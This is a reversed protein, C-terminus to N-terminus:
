GLTSGAFYFDFPANYTPSIECQVNFPITSENPAKQFAISIDGTNICQYAFARRDGNFSEWGLMFRAENGPTPPTVKTSATTTAGTVTKTAGNLAWAFKTAVFDELAFEVSGTRATTYIAIPDFSEAAEVPSTTINYHFTSGGTTMGMWVWGTAWASTFKSATVATSDPPTTGLPAYWLYGPGVQLNPQTITPATASM